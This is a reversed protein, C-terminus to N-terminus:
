FTNTNSDTKCKELEIEDRVRRIFQIQDTPIFGVFIDKERGYVLIMVKTDCAPAGIFHVCGVMGSKDLVGKLTPINQENPIELLVTSSNSFYDKGARRMIVLPLLQMTLSTPWNAPVVELVGNKRTSKINVDMSRQVPQKWDGGNTMRQSDNFTPVTEKWKLQGQWIVDHSSSGRDISFIYNPNTLSLLKESLLNRLKELPVVCIPCRKMKPHCDKCMLHGNRCQYIPGSQPLDLCVPCELNTNLDEISVCPSPLQASNEMAHYATGGEAENSLKSTWMGQKM